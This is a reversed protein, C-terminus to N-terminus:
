HMVNARGAPAKASPPTWAIANRDTSPEAQDREGLVADLVRQGVEFLVQVVGAAECAGM